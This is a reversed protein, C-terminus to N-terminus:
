PQQTTTTTTTTTTSAAQTTDATPATDVPQDQGSQQAQDSSQSQDQAQGADAQSTNDDSQVVVTTQELGIQNNLAIANTNTNASNGSSNVASAALAQSASGGGGDGGDNSAGLRCLGEVDSLKVFSEGGAATSPSEVHVVVPQQSTATPSDAGADTIAGVGLVGVAGGVIAILLTALKEKVAHDKRRDTGWRVM